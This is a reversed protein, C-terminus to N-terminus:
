ALPLVFVPLVFPLHELTDHPAADGDGDGHWDENVVSHVILALDHTERVACRFPLRGHSRSVLSFRLQGCQADHWCYFLMDDTGLANRRAAIVQSIFAIIDAAHIEPLEEDTPSFRWMNTMAEQNIDSSDIAVADDQALALWKNVTTSQIM